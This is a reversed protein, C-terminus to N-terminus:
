SSPRSPTLWSILNYIAQTSLFNAASSFDLLGTDSDVETGDSMATLLEREVLVEPEKVVSYYGQAALQRTKNM